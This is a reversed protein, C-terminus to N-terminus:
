EAAEAEVPVAVLRYGLVNLAAELNGITPQQRGARWRRVAGSAIGARKVLQPDSCRQRVQEDRLFSVAPHVGNRCPRPAIRPAKADPDWWGRVTSVDPEKPPRGM